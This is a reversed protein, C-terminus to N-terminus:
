GRKVTQSAIANRFVQPLLVRFADRVLVLEGKGVGMGEAVKEHAIQHTVACQGLINIFPIYFALQIQRDVSAVHHIQDIVEAELFLSNKQSIEHFDYRVVAPLSNRLVDSIAEVLKQRLWAIGGAGYVSDDMLPLVM